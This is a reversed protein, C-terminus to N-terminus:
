IEKSPPIIKQKKKNNIKRISSTILLFIITSMLSFASFEFWNRIEISIGQQLTAENLWNFFIAWDFISNTLLSLIFGPLFIPLFVIIYYIESDNRRSYDAYTNSALLLSMLDAMLWLYIIKRTITKENTASYFIWMAWILPATFICWLSATKPIFLLCAMFLTYLTFNIKIIKNFTKDM